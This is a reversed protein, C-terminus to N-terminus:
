RIYLNVSYSSAWCKTKVYFKIVNGCPKLEDDDEYENDCTIEYETDECTMNDVTFYHPSECNNCILELEGDEEQWADLMGM